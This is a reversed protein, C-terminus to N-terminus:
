ILSRVASLSVSSDCVVERTGIADAAAINIGGIYSYGRESGNAISHCIIPFCNRISNSFRFLRRSLPNFTVSTNGSSFYSKGRGFGHFDRSVDANILLRRENIGTRNVLREENNAFLIGRGSGLIRPSRTLRAFTVFQAVSLSSFVMPM